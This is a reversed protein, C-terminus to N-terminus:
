KSGEAWLTCFQSEEVRCYNVKCSYIGCVWSWTYSSSINLSGQTTRRDNSGNWQKRGCLSMPSSFKHFCQQPPHDNKKAQLLLAKTKSTVRCYVTLQQLYLETTQELNMECAIEVFSIHLFCETPIQNTYHGNDLQQEQVHHEDYEVFKCAVKQFQNVHKCTKSQSAQVVVLELGQLFCCDCLTRMM